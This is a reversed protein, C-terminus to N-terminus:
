QSKPPRKAQELAIERISQFSTEHSAGEIAKIALSQSQKVVADIQASLSTIQQAQKDITAQLSEIKLEAIRRHGEEEKALLDDRIKAEKRAVETGEKDAQRIAAELKKALSEAETKLDRCIQEQEAIANEREAWIKEKATVSAELERYRARKEQEYREADLKHEVDLSYKYEQVERKREAKIQEDREKIAQTHAKQEQAWDKQKQAMKREFAQRQQASRAQLARSKEEYAQILEDLANETTTIGHLEELRTKKEQIQRRLAALTTVEASLQSSLENLAGGFGTRLTALENLITGVTAGTEPTARKPAPKQAAVPPTIAGAQREAEGKKRLADIEQLSEKHRAQLQEYEDWLQKYAAYIQAKTNRTSVKEVM